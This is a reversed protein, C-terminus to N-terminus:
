SRHFSRKDALLLGQVSISPEEFVVLSPLSSIALRTMHDAVMNQSRPVHHIRVKWERNLISHILLLEVMKSNAYGNALLSEVLLANDCEIEVQRLRRGWAVRLDELMARGEMKFINNKGMGM